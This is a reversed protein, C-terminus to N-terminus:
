NGNGNSDTATAASSDAIKAYKDAEATLAQLSEIHKGYMDFVKDRFEIVTDALTQIEKRKATTDADLEANVQAVYAEADSIMKTCKEKTKAILANGIDRAEIRLKNIQQEKARYEEIKAVAIKLQRDSECKSNYLETYKDRLYEIYEDVEDQTYGRVSKTFNQTKLENPLLM